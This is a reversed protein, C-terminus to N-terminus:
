TAGQQQVCKLMLIYVASSLRNLGRIIDERGEPFAQAAELETQRVQTRLGNLRAVRLGHRPGPMFHPIGLYQQPLQSYTRVQDLTMGLLRDVRFPEELVECKLIQRVFDLLEGCQAQLEPEELALLLIRSELSDLSGRFRIRPHTKPVLVEGTLQTMHEPKEEYYCGDLGRYRTIKAQAAPVIPIREETLYDRASSTLTDGEALFFVRRGQRTRINDRVNELCWLM